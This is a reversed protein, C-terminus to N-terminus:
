QVPNQSVERDRPIYLEIAFGEVPLSLLYCYTTHNTQSSFHFLSDLCSIHCNMFTCRFGLAKQTFQIMCLLLQYYHSNLTSANMIPILSDGPLVLRTPSFSIFDLSLTWNELWTCIDSM